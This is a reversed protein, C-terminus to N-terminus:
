HLALSRFKVCARLKSFQQINYVFLISLDIHIHRNIKKFVPMEYYVQCQSVTGNNSLKIM